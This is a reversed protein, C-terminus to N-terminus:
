YNIKGRNDAFINSSSFNYKRRQKTTYNKDTNNLQANSTLILQALNYKIHERTIIMENNSYEMNDLLETVKESIQVITSISRNSSFNDKNNLNM